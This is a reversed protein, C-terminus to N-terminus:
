VAESKPTMVSGFPVVVHTVAPVPSGITSTAPRVITGLARTRYAAVCPRLAQFSFSGYFKPQTEQAPYHFDIGGVKKRPVPKQAAPRIRRPSCCRHHSCTSAGPQRLLAAEVRVSRTVRNRM